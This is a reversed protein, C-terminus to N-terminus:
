GALNYKVEESLTEPVHEPVVRGTTSHDSLLEPTPGAEDAKGKSESADKNRDIQQYVAVFGTCLVPLVPSRL